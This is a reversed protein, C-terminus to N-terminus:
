EDGGEMLVATLDCACNPHVPPGFVPWDGVSLVRAAGDAMYEFTGGRPIMEQDLPHNNFEEAMADCLPCPDGSRMWKVGSVIGSEKWSARKGGINARATETRAICEAANSALEPMAERVSQVAQPLTEGADVSAKLANQLREQTTDTISRALRVKYSEFFRVAAPNKLNFPDVAPSAGQQELSYIGANWGEGFISELPKELLAAVTREFNSLHLARAIPDTGTAHQLSAALKDYADQVASRMAEENDLETPKKDDKTSWVRKIFIDFGKVWKGVPAPANAAADTKAAAADRAIQLSPDEKAEFSRLPAIMAEILSPDVAPFAAQMMPALSDIPIQGAAAEAIMEQMATVQAGNMATDQVAEGPAVPEGPKPAISAGDKGMGTVSMEDMAGLPVGNMRRVDGEPGIGEENEDELVDNITYVGAQLYAVNRKLCFEKDEPVINDYAFWMEGPEIGFLPLLQETWEEADQCLRPRITDRLYQRDGSDSSALNSSNVLVRSEPVGYAALIRERCNEKGALYEMEKLSFNLPDLEAETVVLFKGRNQPGQHQGNVSARFAKIQSETSGKPLKFVYDPRGGNQWMATESVTSAADLDAEAVIAHMPGIGYYPSFPSLAHKRHFVDEAELVKEIVGDRGYVYGGIFENVDPIVRTYQPQMPLLATPTGSGDTVVELFDNGCLERFLFGLKFFDSGKMWPNPRQLLTLVPHSTVEEVDGARDAYMAAKAGPGTMPSRYYALRKRDTVRKAWKRKRAGKASTMLRMQASTCAESNTTACVHVWQRARLVLAMLENSRAYRPAIAESPRVTQGVWEATSTVKKAATTEFNRM